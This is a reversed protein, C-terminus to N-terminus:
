VRGTRSSGPTVTTRVNGGFSIIPRIESARMVAQPPPPMEPCTSACRQMQTDAGVPRFPDPQERLLSQQLGGAEVGLLDCVPRTRQQAVGRAAAGHESADLGAVKAAAKRGGEIVERM